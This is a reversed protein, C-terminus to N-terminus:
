LEPLLCHDAHAGGDPRAASGAVLRATAWLMNIHIELSGGSRTDNCNFVNKEPMKYIIDMLLCTQIMSAPHNQPM